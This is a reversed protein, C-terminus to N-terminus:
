SSIGGGCDGGGLLLLVSTGAGAISGNVGDGILSGNVGDGTSTGRIEVDGDGWSGCHSPRISLDVVGSVVRSSVLVPSSLESGSSSILLSSRIVLRLIIM